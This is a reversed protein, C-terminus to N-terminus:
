LYGVSGFCSLAFRYLGCKCNIGFVVLMDRMFREALMINISCAQMM